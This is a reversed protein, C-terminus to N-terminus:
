FSKSASLLDNTSYFYPELKVLLVVYRTKLVKYVLIQSTHATLSGLIM